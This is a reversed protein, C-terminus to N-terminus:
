RQRIREDESTLDKTYDKRIKGIKGKLQRAVEFKKMDAEGKVRSSAALWVYKFGDTISDKWFALWSVEDNRIIKGWSHGPIPCEPVPANKGLNLTVDEPM